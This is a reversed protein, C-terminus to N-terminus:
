NMLANAHEPRCRRAGSRHGRRGHGLADGFVFASAADGVVTVIMDLDIAALGAL